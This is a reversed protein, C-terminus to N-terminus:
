VHIFDPNNELEVNAASGTVVGKLELTLDHMTSFLDMLLDKYEKLLDPIEVHELAALTPQLAADLDDM